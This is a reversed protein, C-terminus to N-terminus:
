KFDNIKEIIYNLESDSLFPNCPLSLCKKSHNESNIIGKPDIRFNSISKQKHAPIPYHILSIIGNEELYSLLKKRKDTLVVFLHFVHSSYQKPEELMFISNNKLYRFYLKAIDRRRSTYIELYKLKEVLLAAQLEDLRSNQGEYPHEYRVTQGYNRLIKFKKDLRDNNTIIAGADGVAGLNKTPYFSYSGAEGFSGAYEGNINALHSQACDEILLIKERKCLKKWEYLDKLQGYIHVLLVAKTKKTICRKVSNISLLATNPDIDALVPIAGARVIALITAFATMPTTIVEDGKGISLGRLIIELGDLGNGVGTCFKTKCSLAWLQEFNKLENGLIFWGSKLVRDFAEKQNDILEKSERTFDNFKIIM